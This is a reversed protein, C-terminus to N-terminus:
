WFYDRAAEDYIKRFNFYFFPPSNELKENNKINHSKNWM